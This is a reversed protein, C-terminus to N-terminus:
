KNIIYKKIIDKFFVIGLCISTSIVLDKNSLEKFSIQSENVGLEMLIERLLIQAGLGTIIFTIKKISTKFRKKYIKISQKIVKKILNKHFTFIYKAMQNLEEQSVLNLDGCVIRSLRSYCYEKSKPRGDSTECIYQEESIKDLILYVDAMNSFFEFSIPCLKNRFPIQNVVSSIPPRLIGTYFLENNLLRDLDNKGIPVPIGHRIPILDLTTSGLDLLISLDEDEGLVLSTAVWNSAAVSLYRDKASDISIFDGNVTILYIKNKDFVCELDNLITIIGEYKTQFADSLEATITALVYYDSNKNENKNRLFEIVQQKIQLLLDVFEKNNHKWFPFYKIESIIQITNRLINKYKIAENNLNKNPMISKLENLYKDFDLFLLSYKTNAGGIDLCLAYEYFYNCTEVCIV